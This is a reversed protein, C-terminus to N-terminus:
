ILPGMSPGTNAKKPPPYAVGEPYLPQAQHDKSEPWSRISLAYRISDCLHERGTKAPALEGHTNEELPYEELREIFDTLSRSIQWKGERGLRNLLMVGTMVDKQGHEPYIGHRILEDEVSEGTVLNKARANNPDIAFTANGPAIGWRGLVRGIADAYQSADTAKLEVTDFTLFHENRMNATFTLGCVRYGPDIGVLIESAKAVAEPAPKDCLWDRLSPYCFGHEATFTGEIRRQRAVESLGLPGDEMLESVFAENLHPNDTMSVQELHVRPDDRNKFLTRYAWTLGKLPTFSFVEDGGYDILRMLCEERIDEPPEEDYHCRHLDAGGFKDLSMEYSLFDFRCGCELHLSNAQRDYGSRFTGDKLLEKPLWEAIKKHIVPKMTREMDPTMIRCYFPCDRIKYEALHEPLLERPTAQIIDDVIATTTKGSRNGGQIARLRVQQEHFTRHKASAPRYFQLPNRDKLKEIEQLALRAQLQVDPPADALRSLDVTVDGIRVRNSAASSL